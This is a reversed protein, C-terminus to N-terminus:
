YFFHFLTMKGFGFIIKWRDKNSKTDTIHVLKLSVCLHAVFIAAIFFFSSPFLAFFFFM